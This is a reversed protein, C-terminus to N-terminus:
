DGNAQGVVDPSSRGLTPTNRVQHVAVTGVIWAILNLTDTTNGLGEVLLGAVFNVLGVVFAAVAKAVPSLNM